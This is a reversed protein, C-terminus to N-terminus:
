AVRGCAHEQEFAKMFCLLADVGAQPMANYLSARLGGVFRHGKLHFLGEKEARALFAAELAPDRLRFVVNLRSRSAAEVPKEYFDTTDLYDYVCRARSEANKAMQLVGGQEKVWEFVLGLVYWPFCPPTNYMSGSEAHTKYRLMTPTFAMPARELLDDRVIVLTVGAIGLNKQACAYIVGYRAIDVPKTLLNSSMDSVLPVGPMEPPEAFELGHVTENDTYHLYAATEPFSWSDQPPLRTYDADAGSAVVHVKAYHKAEELALRSWSGTDFYAAVEGQQALNLPVMAFQTRAGGQLFLVHYNDPVSLVERVLAQTSEAIRMFAAGRHPMEMVSMGTGDWDLLDSKIKSLVPLPLAVPGASFNFVRTM